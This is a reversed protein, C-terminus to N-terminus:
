KSERRIFFHEIGWDVLGPFWHELLIIWSFLGPLVVVRRPHQNLKWVARAVDESTLVLWTPTKFGSKRESGMHEIFETKVAGPYIGSVHINYHHMERRLADTFGRLGFKTAAYISYTPTAIYGAISSMNIIHGSRQAIMTPIVAKATRIAGHLNVQLQAEIDAELDLKELWGMHGFGANNFLVDIRSYNELTREVLGQVQESSSVDAEIALAEGGNNRILAAQEELRELRRAALVVRYGRQGFYLATAAGIGSSAGTILIVPKESM